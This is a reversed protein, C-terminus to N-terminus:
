ASKEVTKTMTEKSDKEWALYLIKIEHDHLYRSMQLGGKRKKVFFVAQRKPCAATLASISRDIQDNWYTGAYVQIWVDVQDPRWLAHRMLGNLKIPQRCLQGRFIM